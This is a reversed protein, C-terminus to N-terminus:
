ETKANFGPSPFEITGSEPRKYYLMFGGPEWALMKMRDRRRNFFIRVSGDAHAGGLERQVLGCLGDFGNRFDVIGRYLMYRHSPTLGTM